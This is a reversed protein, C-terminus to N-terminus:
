VLLFIKWEMCTSVHAIYIQCRFSFAFSYFVCRDAESAASMLISDSDSEVSFEWRGGGAEENEAAPSGGKTDKNDSSSSGGSSSSNHSSPLGLDSGSPDRFNADGGSSASGGDNARQYRVLRCGVNIPFRQVNASGAFTDKASKRPASCLSLLLGDLYAYRCTSATPTLISLLCLM